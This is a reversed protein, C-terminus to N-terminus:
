EKAQISRISGSSTPERTTTVKDPKKTGGTTIYIKYVQNSYDTQTRTSVNRVGLSARVILISSYFSMIHFALQLIRRSTLILSYKFSKTYSQAQSNLTLVFNVRSCGYM